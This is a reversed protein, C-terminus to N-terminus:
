QERLIGIVLLDEPLSGFYETLSKRILFTTVAVFLM